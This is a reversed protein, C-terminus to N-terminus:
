LFIILLIFIGVCCVVTIKISTKVCWWIFKVPIAVMWYLLYFPLLFLKVLM